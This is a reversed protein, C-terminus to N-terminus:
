KYLMALASDQQRGLFNGKYPKSININLIKLIGIVSYNRASIFNQLQKHIRLKNRLFTAYYYKRFGHKGSWSIQTQFFIHQIGLKFIWKRM